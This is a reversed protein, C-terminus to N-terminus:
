RLRWLRLSRLLQVQREFAALHNNAHLMWDIPPLLSCHGPTPVWCDIPHPSLVPMSLASARGAPLSRSAQMASASPSARSAWSISSLVTEDCWSGMDDGYVSRLTFFRKRLHTTVGRARKCSGPVAEPPQLSSRGARRADDPWQFMAPRPVADARGAGRARRQRPRRGTGAANGTCCRDRGAHRLTAHRAHAV